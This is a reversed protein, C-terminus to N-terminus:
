KYEELFYDIDYYVDGIKPHLQQVATFLILKNDKNFVLLFRVTAYCPHWYM